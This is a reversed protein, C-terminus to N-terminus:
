QPSESNAKTLHKLQRHLSPYFLPQYITVSSQKPQDGFHKEFYM